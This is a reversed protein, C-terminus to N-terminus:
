AFLSVQSGAKPQIAYPLVDSGPFAKGHAPRVGPPFGVVKKVRPRSAPLMEVYGVSRDTAFLISEPGGGSEDTSRFGDGFFLPM